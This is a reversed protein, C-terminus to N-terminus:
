IAIAQWRQSWEEDAVYLTHGRRTLTTMMSEALLPKVPRQRLLHAFMAVYYSDPEGIQEAKLDTFGIFRGEETFGYTVKKLAVEHRDFIMIALAKANNVKDPLVVTVIDPGTLCVLSAAEAVARVQEARLDDDGEGYEVHRVVVCAVPRNARHFVVMAVHQHGTTEFHEQATTKVRDVEGHHFTLETTM